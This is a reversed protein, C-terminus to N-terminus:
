TIPREVNRHTAEKDSRRQARPRTMVLFVVVSAVIFLAGIAVWPWPNIESGGTVRGLSGVMTVGQNQPNMRARIFFPLGGLSILAPLGLRSEPRRALFWTAAIAVPLLFIGISAMGAIVAMWLVVLLLWGFFMPWPRRAQETSNTM